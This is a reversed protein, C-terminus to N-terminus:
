GTLEEDSRSQRKQMTGRIIALLRPFEEDALGALEDVIIEFAVSRENKPKTGM